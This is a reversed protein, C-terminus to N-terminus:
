LSPVVGWPSLGETVDDTARHAPRVAAARGAPSLVPLDDLNRAHM